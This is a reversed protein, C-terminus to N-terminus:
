GDGAGHVCGVEGLTRRAARADAEAAVGDKRADEVFGAGFEGSGGAFVFVLVGVVPVEETEGADIGGGQLFLDGGPRTVPVDECPDVFVCREFVRRKFDAM